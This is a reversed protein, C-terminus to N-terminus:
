TPTISTLGTRTAATRASRRRRRGAPDGELWERQVYHYFQKSWLLGAFSQRMVNQADDSLDGSIIQRM